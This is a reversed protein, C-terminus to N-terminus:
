FRTQPYGLPSESSFSHLRSTALLWLADFFVQVSKPSVFQRIHEPCAINGEEHPPSDAATVFIEAFGVEAGCVPHDSM